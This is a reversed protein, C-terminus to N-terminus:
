ADIRRGFTNGTRRAREMAACTAAWTRDGDRVVWGDMTSEMKLEIANATLEWPGVAGEAAPPATVSAGELGGEDDPKIWSEVALAVVDGSLARSVEDISRTRAKARGRGVDGAVVALGGGKTKAQGLVWGVVGNVDGDGEGSGMDGDSRACDGVDGRYGCATIVMAGVVVLLAM